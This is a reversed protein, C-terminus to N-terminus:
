EDEKNKSQIEQMTKLIGDSIKADVICESGLLKMLTDFEASSLPLNIVDEKIVVDKGNINCTTKKEPMNYQGKEMECLFAMNCAAHWLHPLGSEEDVGHPDNLYAIWHRFLANKYREIEVRKWNEPDKYKKVGYERIRAVDFLIQMPVLTLTPKGQDLKAEPVNINSM